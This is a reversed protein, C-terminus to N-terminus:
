FDDFDSEDFFVDEDSYDEMAKELENSIKVLFITDETRVEVASITESKSNQFKIIDTYDYGDPYKEILLDLIDATLKSYNVIVRKM